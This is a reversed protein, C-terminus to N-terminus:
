RVKESNRTIEIFYVFVFNNSESLARLAEKNIKMNSTKYIFKYCLFKVIGRRKYLFRYVIALLWLIMIKCLPVMMTM